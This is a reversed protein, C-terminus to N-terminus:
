QGLRRFAAIAEETSVGGHGPPFVISVKSGDVDSGLFTFTPTSSGRWVRRLSERDCQYADLAWMALIALIGVVRWLVFAVIAAEVVTYTAIGM